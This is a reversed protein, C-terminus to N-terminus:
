HNYGWQQLLAMYYPFSLTQPCITPNWTEARGCVPWASNPLDRGMTCTMMQLDLSIVKDQKLHQPGYILNKIFLHFYKM